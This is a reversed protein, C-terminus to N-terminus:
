ISYESGGAPKGEPQVLPEALDTVMDVVEEIVPRPVQTWVLAVILHSICREFQYRTLTPLPQIRALFDKAHERSAGLCTLALDTLTHKVTASDADHFLPNLKPDGFLRDCFQEVVLLIATRGGLRHYVSLSANENMEAAM